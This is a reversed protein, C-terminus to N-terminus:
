CCNVGRLRLSKCLVDLVYDSAGEAVFYQGAQIAALGSPLAFVKSAVNQVGGELYYTFGSQPSRQDFVIPFTSLWRSFARSVDRLPKNQPLSLTALFNVEGVTWLVGRRMAPLGVTAVPSQAVDIAGTEDYTLPGFSRFYLTIGYATPTEEPPEPLRRFWEVVESPSDPAGIFHSTSGTVRTM